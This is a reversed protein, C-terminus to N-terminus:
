CLVFKLPQSIGATIHFICLINKLYCTDGVHVNNNQNINSRSALDCLRLRAVVLAVDSITM